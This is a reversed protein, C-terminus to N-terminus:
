NPVRVLRYGAGASDAAGFTVIQGNFIINDSGDTGIITIDGGNAANRAKILTNNALRVAGASAPNTGVAVYAGAGVATLINANFPAYGSSDALTAQLATGNRTLAPFSATTGGFQLRTFDTAANNTIKMVGDSSTAIWGQGNLGVQTTVIYSGLSIAGAKTVNFKSVGGVQLDVLLSGAASNTDTVNAFWHTFTTGV